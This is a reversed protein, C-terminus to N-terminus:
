ETGVALNILQNCFWFSFMKEGDLIDFTSLWIVLRYGLAFSSKAQCVTYTFWKIVRYIDKTIEDFGIPEDNCSTNSLTSSASPSIVIVLRTNIYFLYVFPMYDLSVERTKFTGFDERSLRM